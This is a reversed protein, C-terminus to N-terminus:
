AKIALPLSDFLMADGGRGAQEIQLIRFKTTVGGPASFGGSRGSSALVRHCPVIIPVPNRGMAMGVARAAGPAGARAALEGYTVTAGTPVERLLAYIQREFDPCSDLDVPIARLDVAEGDLLRQVLAIADAAPGDPEAEAAGPNRRILHRVTAADGEGPLATSVVLGSRWAIGCRGIATDFVRYHAAETM